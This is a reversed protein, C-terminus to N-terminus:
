APCRFRPLPRPLNESDPGPLLLLRERGETEGLQLRVTDTWSQGEGEMALTVLADAGESPEVGTVTGLSEYYELRDPGVELRTESAPSCDGGEADWVGQFRAPITGALAAPPGAGDGIGGDPEVPIPTDDPADPAPEPSGCAALALLAPALLILRM